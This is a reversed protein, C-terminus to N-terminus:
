EKELQKHAVLKKTMASSYHKRPRSKCFNSIVRDLLTNKNRCFEDYILSPWLLFSLNDKLQKLVEFSENHTDYFDLLVNTDIVIKM